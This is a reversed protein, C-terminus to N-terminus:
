DFRVDLVTFGPPRAGTTVTADPAAIRALLDLEAEPYLRQSSVVADHTLLPDRSGVAAMPGLFGLLRATRRGDIAVFADAVEGAGGVMRALQGPTFHHVSQAVFVVDPDVTAGEVGDAARTVADPGLDLADLEVFRTALDESAARENADAVYRPVVDSGTVAVGAADARGTRELELAFAGYGSALELVEVSGDHPGEPRVGDAVYSLVDAFVDYSGLVQNMRHLERVAELKTEEDVDPRDIYEDRDTRVFRDVADRLGWTPGRDRAASRRRRRFAALSDDAVSELEDLDTWRPPFGEEARMAEAVSADLDRLGLM